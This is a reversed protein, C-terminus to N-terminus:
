MDSTIVGNPGNVAVDYLQPVILDGNATANWTAGGDTSQYTFYGVGLPGGLCISGVTETSFGM